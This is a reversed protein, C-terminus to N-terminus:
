YAILGSETVRQHQQFSQIILTAIRNGTEDDIHHGVRVTIVQIIGCLMQQIM